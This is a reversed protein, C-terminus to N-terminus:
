ASAFGSPPATIKPTTFPMSTTAFSAFRAAATAAAAAPPRARRSAARDRQARVGLLEHGPDEALEPRLEPM